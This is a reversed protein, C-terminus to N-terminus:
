KKKNIKEYSVEAEDLDQVAWLVSLGHTTSCTACLMLRLTGLDMM